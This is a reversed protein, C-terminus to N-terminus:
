HEGDPGGTGFVKPLDQEGGLVPVVMINQQGAEYFLISRGFGAVKLVRMNQLHPNDYTRSTGRLPMDQLSDATARVAHIFRGALRHDRGAYWSAIEIIDQEAQPTYTIRM